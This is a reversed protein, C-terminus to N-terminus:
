QAENQYLTMESSVSDTRKFRPSSREQGIKDVIYSMKTLSDYVWSCTSRLQRHPPGSAHVVPDQLACMDLVAPDVHDALREKMLDNM